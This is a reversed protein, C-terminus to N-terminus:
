IWLKDFKYSLNNFNNFNIIICISKENKQFNEEKKKTKM